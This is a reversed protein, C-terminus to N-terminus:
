NKILKSRWIVTTLGGAMVMLILGILLGNGAGTEGTQPIDPDTMTITTTEVVTENMPQTTESQLPVSETTLEITTETVTEGSPQTTVAPTTETTEETEDPDYYISFHSIAPNQGGSNIPPYLSGDDMHMLMMYNYTYFNDGGKVVFYNVKIGVAVWSTISEGYTDNGITVTLSRGMGLDFMTEGSMPSDKKFYFDSDYTNEDNNGATFTPVVGRDSIAWAHPDVDAKIPAALENSALAAVSLLMSLAVALIMIKKTKNM